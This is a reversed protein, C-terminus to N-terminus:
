PTKIFCRTYVRFKERIDKSNDDTQSFDHYFIDGTVQAVIVYLDPFDRFQFRYLPEIRSTNSGM